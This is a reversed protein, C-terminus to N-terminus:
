AHGFQIVQCLETLRRVLPDGRVQSAGPRGSNQAMQEARLNTTVYLPLGEGLRIDLFRFFWGASWESRASQMAEQGLDDIFVIARRATAEVWGRADDRGYSIQSQLTNFWDSANWCRVERVEDCALRRMLQWMARSKGRGTAGSCLIGRKEPSHALISSIQDAYPMLSPRAWDTGRMEPPCEHEWRARAADRRANEAFISGIADHQAYYSDLPVPLAAVERLARSASLPNLDLDTM